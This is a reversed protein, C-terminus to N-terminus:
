TEEFRLRSKFCECMSHCSQRAFLLSLFDIADCSYHSALSILVYLPCQRMGNKFPLYLVIGGMITAVVIISQVVALETFGAVIVSSLLVGQGGLAVRVCYVCCLRTISTLPRVLQNHQSLACLQTTNNRM